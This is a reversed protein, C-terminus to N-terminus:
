RKQRSISLEQIRAKGGDPLKSIWVLYNQFERSALDLQFVQKERVPATASVKRWGRLSAPVTNSAYVAADFGPTSTALSLRRAPIPRGTDVYLGVGSKAAGEFGASYTETDWNTTAEGDIPPLPMSRLLAADVLRETREDARPM